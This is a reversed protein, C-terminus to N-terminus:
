SKNINKCIGEIVEELEKKGKIQNELRIVINSVNSYHALKFETAIEKLSCLTLKRSLYIAVTRPSFKQGQSKNLLKKKDVDFFASVEQIVRKINEAVKQHKTDPIELEVKTGDLVKQIFSKRGLIPKLYKKSYFEITMDDNGCCVFEDYNNISGLMGLTLDTSLWKPRIDDGLYSKFSSWEYHAAQDVMDAEVPNLHIYRSVNLLYSDVEILIRKFRGRFVPGDSKLKKNLARAYSSGVFSMIQRLNAEPTRVLLHYHNDMLCYAHVELWLERCAIELLNLFYYRDDDDYFIKRYGAGRNMVHYMAGPYEITLSRSM